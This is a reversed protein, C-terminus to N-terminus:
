CGHHRTIYIKQANNDAWIKAHYAEKSGDLDGCAMLDEKLWGLTHNRVTQLGAKPTEIPDSFKFKTGVKKAVEEAPVNDNGTKRKRM